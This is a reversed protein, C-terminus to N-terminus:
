AVEKPRAHAAKIGDISRQGSYVSFFTVAWDPLENVEIGEFRNMVAENLQQFRLLTAEPASYMVSTFVNLLEFRLDEESQPTLALLSRILTIIERPQQELMVLYKETDKPDNAM